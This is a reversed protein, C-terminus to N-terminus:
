DRSADRVRVRDRTVTLFLDLQHSHEALVHNLRDIRESLVAVGLRFYIIGAHREGQQFILEGFDRDDTMLIRNERQAIALIDMDALGSHHDGVVTTADHGLGRLHDALQADTNEDLLFRM